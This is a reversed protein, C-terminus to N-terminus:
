AARALRRLMIRSMAWYIMAEATQALREYDKSLRRVQSLGPEAVRLDERGGLAPASSPLRAAEGGARLAVTAPRPPAAGGRALGAGRRGV